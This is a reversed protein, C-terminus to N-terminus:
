ENLFFTTLEKRYNREGYGMDCLKFFGYERCLAEVILKYAVKVRNHTDHYENEDGLADTWIHVTQVRLPKPIADYTYVDPDEGRLRKQRKSFLDIINM